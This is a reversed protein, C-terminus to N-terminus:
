TDSLKAFKKRWLLIAAASFFLTLLEALPVALWVGMEGLFLPLTFLFFLLFIFTRLSSIIASVRGNSLATFFASAFINIGCFLFSFPFIFFGRRAIGYVPTGEASFISVLPGGGAMSLLFVLASVVMIFSICIKFIKRLRFSDGRGYNYSIVPAAGM